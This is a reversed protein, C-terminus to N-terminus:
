EEDDDGLPNNEEYERIFNKANLGQDGVSFVSKPVHSIDAYVEPRNKPKEDITLPEDTREFPNANGFNSQLKALTELILAQNNQQKDEVAIRKKAVITDGAHKLADLGLRIFKPDENAILEKAVSMRVAQIQELQADEDTISLDIEIPRSPTESM